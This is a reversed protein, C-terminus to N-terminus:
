PKNSEMQGQFSIKELSQLHMQFSFIKQIKFGM